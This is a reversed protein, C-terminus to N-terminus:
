KKLTSLFKGGFYYVCVFAGVIIITIVIALIIKLANNKIVGCVSGIINIITEFILGCFNLPFLLIQVIIFIIVSPVMLCQMAKLSKKERVGIYKLIDKNCDFFAKAKDSEVNIREVEKQKTTIEKDLEGIQKEKEQAIRSVEQSIRTTEAQIRKAEADNRLEEQKEIVIKEVTGEQKLATSTAYFDIATKIDNTDQVKKEILNNVSTKEDKKIIMQQAQQEIQKEVDEM